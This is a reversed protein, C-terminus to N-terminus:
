LGLAKAMKNYEYEIQTKLMEDRSGAPIKDSILLTEQELNVLREHKWADLVLEIQDKTLTQKITEISLSEMANAAYANISLTAFAIVICKIIAKMTVEKHTLLKM